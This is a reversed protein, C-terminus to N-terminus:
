CALFLKWGVALLSGPPPNKRRQGGGLASWRYCEAPRGLLLGIVESFACASSICGDAASSCCAALLNAPCSRPLEWVSPGPSTIAKLNPPVESRPASRMSCAACITREEACVQLTTTITEAM